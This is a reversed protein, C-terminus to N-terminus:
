GRIRTFVWFNRLKIFINSLRFYYPCTAFACVVEVASRIWYGSIFYQRAAVYRYHAKSYRYLGKAVYESYYKQQFRKLRDLKEKLLGSRSEILTRLFVLPRDVCIVDYKKAIRLWMDWDEVTDGDTDFGNLELLISRKVVVGSCSGAIVQRKLLEEYVDGCYKAEIVGLQKGMGDCLVTTTYSWVSSNNEMVSIQANLKDKAWWDDADLFALYEGKANEVGWNRTASVGMNAENKLWHIRNDQFKADVGSFSIESCDDVVLLEINVYSQDLVSQVAQELWEAKTNYTPMIVSVLPDAM